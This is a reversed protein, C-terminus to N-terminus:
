VGASGAAEMHDPPLVLSLNSRPTTAMSTTTCVTSSESPSSVSVNLSTSSFSAPAGSPEVASATPVMMSSSTRTDTAFTEAWSPSADVGPM